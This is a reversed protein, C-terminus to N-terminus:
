VWTPQTPKNMRVMDIFQHFQEHAIVLQTKVNNLKINAENGYPIIKMNSLHLEWNHM